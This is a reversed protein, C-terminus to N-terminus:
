MESDFATRKKSKLRLKFISNETSYQCAPPVIASINEALCRPRPMVKNVVPATRPGTRPGTM